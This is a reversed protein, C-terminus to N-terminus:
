RVTSRYGAANLRPFVEDRFTRMEQGPGVFTQFAQVYLNTVGVAAMEVIRRACHEATGVLGFTECLEGIVDDPVFSTAAIAQEWDRAHSLDPYIARVAPPIDFRPLTLGTYPLWHSRSSLFAQHVVTPRAQRRAEATSKAIGVRVAWIVELDELRRGGRRAGAALHSLVAEVIRPHFGVSLLVGDAIEGALETAKPGSAAMLVPIRRGSAYALRGPTGDFTVSEGALLARLTTICARMEGLTAPKRGITHASTYGTGIIMKTRGPATEEVTQIASALVSAHRTLPNPVAPFIPPAPQRSDRRRRLRGGRRGPDAHDARADAGHRSDPALRSRATGHAFEVDGPGRRVM